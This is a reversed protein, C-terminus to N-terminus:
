TGEHIPHDLHRSFLIKRNLEIAVRDSLRANEGGLSPGRDARHHCGLDPLRDLCLVGVLGSAPAGQLPELAAETEPSTAYVAVLQM